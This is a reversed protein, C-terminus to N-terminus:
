WQALSASKTDKISLNITFNFNSVETIFKVHIYIYNIIKVIRSLMYKIFIYYIM